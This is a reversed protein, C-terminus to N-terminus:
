SWCSRASSTRTVLSKRRSRPRSSRTFTQLCRASILELISHHLAEVGFPVYGQGRVEGHGAAHAGRVGDGRRLEEQSGDSEHDTRTCTLVLPALRGLTLCATAILCALDCAPARVCALLRLRRVPLTLQTLSQHLWSVELYVDATLGARIARFGAFPSPLFMGSVSVIDGPVCRRTMDGFARVQVPQSFFFCGLRSSADRPFRHGFCCSIWCPIPDLCPVCLRSVKLARPTHGVPVEEPQAAVICRSSWTIMLTCLLM